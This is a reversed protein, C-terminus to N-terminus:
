KVEEYTKKFEHEPVLYKINNSNVVFNTPEIFVMNGKLNYIYPIGKLDTLKGGLKVIYSTWKEVINYYIENDSIFKIPLIGDEIGLDPKYQSAYLISDKIKYKKM